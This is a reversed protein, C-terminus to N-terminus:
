QVTPPTTQVPPVHSAHPPVPWGHQSPLVQPPPPQQMSLVQTALPSLQPPPPEPVQEAPVQLPLQPAIPSGQQPPSVAQQADHLEHWPPVQPTHPPRSWGQQPPEVHPAGYAHVPPPPPVARRQRM